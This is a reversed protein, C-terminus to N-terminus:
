RRLPPRLTNPPEIADLQLDKVIKAFSARADREVAVCPHAKRGGDDTNVTLGDLDLVKRAQQARDWSECAAQLLKLHHPGFDYDTTMKDWWAVAEATLHEPAQPGGAARKRNSM